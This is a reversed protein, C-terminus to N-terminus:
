WHQQARQLLRNRRKVFACWTEVYSFRTALLVVVAKVRGLVGTKWIWRLFHHRRPLLAGQILQSKPSFPVHENKKIAYYQGSILGLQRAKAPAASVRAEHLHCESLHLKYTCSLKKQSFKSFHAKIVYYRQGTAYEGISPSFNSRLAFLSNTKGLSSHKKEEGQPCNFTWLQNYKEKQKPRWLTSLWVYLKDMADGYVRNRLSGAGHRILPGKAYM